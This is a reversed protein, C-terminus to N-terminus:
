ARFRSAEERLGAAVQSLESASARAQAAMETTVKTAEAVAGIAGAIENAGQAVQHLTNGMEQATAAQQEVAAAVSQQMADIARMAKAVEAIVAASEGVGKQIAAIKDSVEASAAQTRRALEKVEGAVVAFGRGAEGASAAEISANLSLLNVQEAIGNILQIISGIEGSLRALADIGAAAKDGTIAGQGAAQAAQQANVAIEKISSNLQEVAAAFSTVNGSVSEAAHAVQSAREAAHASNDTLRDGVASLEESQSAASTSHETIHQVAKGMAGLATDLATSMRGYEDDSVHALRVTLDGGAVQALVAEAREIPRALRRAIMMGAVVGAICAALAGGAIRLVVWGAEQRASAGIRGAVALAEDRGQALVLTNRHEGLKWPVFAAFMDQDNDHYHIVGEEGSRLRPVELEAMGATAQDAISAKDKWTLRQHALVRGQADAIWPFGTRGIAHTKLLDAVVQWDCNLVVAGLFRGDRHIPGSIRVVPRGTTRSAEVASFEVSGPAAGAIPKWWDAGAHDVLDKVQRGDRLVVVEKGAADLLRVQAFLPKQERGVEVMGSRWTAAAEQQFAEASSAAVGAALDDHWGAYFLTWNWDPIRTYVAYKARGEFPYDIRKVKGVADQDAIVAAFEAIKLDDVIHRGVLEARPHFFLRGSADLVMGSGTRDLKRELVTKAFGPVERVDVGNFVVGMIQGDAGRWPTYSTLCWVDVVRALGVFTRGDLVTALVKNPTGDPMQVPIFTGIARKGDALKVSTAVRLMDGAPNMRQFLTTWGGVLATVEDVVPVKVEFGDVRPLPTGGLAIAPMSVDVVAKSFQNVGKWAVPAGLTMQGRQALVYEAVNVNRRLVQQLLATQVEWEKAMGAVGAEVGALLRAQLEKDTGLRAALLTAANDSSSLGRANAAASRMITDLLERERRASAQLSGEVEEQLGASTQAVTATAFRDFSWWAIGGVLVSPGVVLALSTVTLRKRINM